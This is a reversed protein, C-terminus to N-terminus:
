RDRPDPPPDIYGYWAAGPADGYIAQRVKIWIQNGWDYHWYLIPDNLFGERTFAWDMLRRNLLRADDPAILGRDLQREFYDTYSVDVIEEFASGMDLLDDSDLYKLTVDVSSGTIHIPFTRTDLKEFKRPDRVYGLAYQRCDEDSAGPIEQRGREFFFEWLGRQCEISRYADYILLEAGYPRLSITSRRWSRPWPRASGAM